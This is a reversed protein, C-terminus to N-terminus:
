GQLARIFTYAAFIGYVTAILIVDRIKQAFLLSLLPVMQLAHMGIFHAIRLDGNKKSWNLFPIGSGGDPAGVTHSLRSGMVLGEMAFLAFLWMGLIISWKMPSSLLVPSISFFKFSLVFTSVAILTAAIGMLGFMMQTTPTSQNFHSMEGRSAMWTIYINEFVFLISIFISYFRVSNDQEIYGTYLTMTWLFLLSSLLFKLPKHWANVNQVLTDSFIAPWILLVAAVTHALSVWFLIENKEKLLLIWSM